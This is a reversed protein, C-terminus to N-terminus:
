YQNRAETNLVDIRKKIGSLMREMAKLSRTLTIDKKGSETLYWKVKAQSDSTVTERIKDLFENKEVEVAAMQLSYSAYMGSLWMNYESLEAPTLNLDRINEAIQNLTLDKNM